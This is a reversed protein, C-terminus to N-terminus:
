AALEKLLDEGKLCDLRSLISDDRRMARTIAASVEIRQDSNLSPCQELVRRPMSERTQRLLEANAALDRDVDERLLYLGRKALREVARSEMADITACLKTYKNELVTTDRGQALAEKLEDFKAAELQRLGRLRSGEVPDFDELRVGPKAPASGGAGPIVSAAPMAPQSAPIQHSPTPMASTTEPSAAPPGARAADLAAQEIEAPVSWKMNRSWWGPMKAPEGLPCPEGNKEGKEIWRYMTRWAKASGKYVIAYRAADATTLKVTSPEAALAFGAPASAGVAAVTPPVPEAAFGPHAARVEEWQALTLEGGDCYVGLHAAARQQKALEPTMAIIEMKKRHAATLKEGEGVDKVANRVDAALVKAALDPSLQDM